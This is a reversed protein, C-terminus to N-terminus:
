DATISKKKKQKKNKNWSPFLMWALSFNQSHSFISFGDSGQLRLHKVSTSLFESKSFKWMSALTHKNISFYRGPQRHGQTVFKSWM